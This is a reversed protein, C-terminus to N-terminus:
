KEIAFGLAYRKDITQCLKQEVRFSTHRLRVGPIANAPDPLVDIGKDDSGGREQLGMPVTVYAPKIMEGQEIVAAVKEICWPAPFDEWDEEALTVDVHLLHPATSM